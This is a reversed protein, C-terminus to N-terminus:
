ADPDKDFSTHGSGKGCPFRTGSSPSSRGKGSWARHDFHRKRTSRDPNFFPVNGTTTASHTLVLGRVRLVPSTSRHVSITRTHQQRCARWPVYTSCERPAVSTANQCGRHSLKDLSSRGLRTTARRSALLRPGLYFALQDIRALILGHGARSQEMRSQEM